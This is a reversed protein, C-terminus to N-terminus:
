NWKGTVAMENMYLIALVIVLKRNYLGRNTVLTPAGWGALSEGIIDILEVAQSSLHVGRDVYEAERERVYISTFQRITAQDIEDIDSALRRLAMDVLRTVNWTGQANLLNMPTPIVTILRDGIEGVLEAIYPTWIIRARKYPTDSM